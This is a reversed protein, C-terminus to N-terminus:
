TRPKKNTWLLCDWHNMYLLPPLLFDYKIATKIIWFFQPFMNSILIELKTSFPFAYKSILAMKSFFLNVKQKVGDGRLGFTSYLRM